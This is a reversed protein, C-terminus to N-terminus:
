PLIWKATIDNFFCHLYVTIFSFILNIRLITSFIDFIKSGKLAVIIGMFAKLGM